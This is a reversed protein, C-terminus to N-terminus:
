AHCHQRFAAWKRPAVKWSCSADRLTFALERIAASTSAYNTRKSLGRRRLKEVISDVASITCVLERVAPPLALLPRLPAWNREWYTALAENAAPMMEGPNVSAPAQVITRLMAAIAARQETLPLVGAAGEVLRRACPLIHTAPFALRIADAAADDEAVAMAIDCVGRARLQSVASSWATAPPEAWVGIIDKTGDALIGLAFYLRTTHMLGRDRTRLMLTDFFALAYVPELRRNRWHEMEDPQRRVPYDTPASGFLAEVRRRAGGVPTDQPYSPRVAQRNAM